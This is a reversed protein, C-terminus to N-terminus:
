FKWLFWQLTIHLLWIKIGGAFLVSKMWVKHVEKMHQAGGIKMSINYCEYFNHVNEKWKPPQSTSAIQGSNIELVVSCIEKL